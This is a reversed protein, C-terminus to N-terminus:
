DEIMIGDLIDNESVTFEDKNFLEMLFELIYTGGIIFEARKPHLGIIKKREEISKDKYIKLNNVLDEKTM